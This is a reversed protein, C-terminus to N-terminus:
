KSKKADDENAPACGHGDGGKLLDLVAVVLRKTWFLQLLTFFVNALLTGVVIATDHATGAQLAAVSDAWFVLAHKAWYYVRFALFMFAFAVKNVLGLTPYLKDVEPYYSTLDVVVLPLSSLEAVGMFFASYYQCFPGSLSWWCLLAALFHHAFMEPVRLKPHIMSVFFDWVQFALNVKLVRRAGASVGYLRDPFDALEAGTWVLLGELGCVGLNAVSVLEFALLFPAPRAWGPGVVRLAASLAALAAFMAVVWVGAAAVDAALGPELGSAAALPSALVDVAAHLDDLLGAAVRRLAELDM